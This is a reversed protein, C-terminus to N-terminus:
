REEKGVSLFVKITTGEGPKSKVEIRGKHEEIIRRTIALGLGTGAPKTTYFPDFIFPLDKEAIGAGTDSLEVVVNGDRPYTKITIKGHAGVAQISNNVINLFAEKIRDGDLLVEPVEGFGTEVGIGREAVESDVLSLVNRILSNIDVSTISLRVERVFGLIDRLIDELRKVERAIITAYEKLNGELKNELRQAFGGISVLPNRIEHAVKAAVEGLAAMREATALRERIHKLETIDRVIHVAGLFNGSIDFIPSTSTLFTESTRPDEVEEIYSKKTAVTKHHPCAKWPENMSHFVDYCKRGVIEEERLGLRESVAKNVSRITYDMDTFYVMDSISKFINELEAEAFSVQEFLKASEIAAAMQNSFATLFRMDEETISKKNFLNDVFLVGIVKDRSILPVVAYAETGLQQILLPDSLPENRADPVNLPKKERVSAAFVSESDLSIELGLSLRDLFTDLKKPGAEIEQMVDNLTKKEMSLKEWVMGAEEYSSPGVGMAGKLVNREEDMLFLVARNFGLGDGMTVATLIMRLLRDLDLTSRMASSIFFLRSLEQNRKILEKEVAKKESIDRSIGSVGIIGGSADKIPSLTLSVEIIKGDRRRRVTEIDKLVEGNRVRETFERETEKLFDPVFPLFTGIAEEETYGYIRGAGQNWSTVVGNLDSTVIADASNDILSELYEKTQTVERYLALMEEQYLVRDTIDLIFVVCEQVNGNEDKIPYSTLEAYNLGSVQTIVNIEGTDCTVQAVCHPCIGKNGHFIDLCSKGIIEEVPLGLWTEVYKNASLITFEKGITMIGGQVSDFLVDLRKKAEVAEKERQLEWEFMKAKEIAIASLSAFGEATSLDDGSFPIIVDDRTKKDYLGLTGIVKEGVMLPVNIVSRADLHPIQWDAPMKSLDEVLIPRGEEAVKGPLGEGVALTMMKEIEKQLGYSAKIVLKDDELLRIICGRANLFRTAEEAMKRLLEDLDLTSTIAKALEYMARLKQLQNKTSLYLEVNKENAMQLEEVMKDFRQAIIGFEDKRRSSIRYDLDGSIIRDTATLIDIFPVAIMRRMFLALLLFALSSSAFLGALYYAMERKIKEGQDIAATFARVSKIHLDDLKARIDGEKEELRRLLTFINRTDAPLDTSIVANALGRLEEFDKGISKLGETDAASKTLNGFNKYVNGLREKYIRKFKSNGTVAWGDAAMVFDIISMKLDEHLNYVESSTRLVEFNSSMSKFILFSGAIFAAILILFAIIFINLKSKITM